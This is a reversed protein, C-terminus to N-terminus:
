PATTFTRGTSISFSGDGSRPGQPQDDTRSFADLYGSPGALEDMTAASGHKEVRWNYLENRRPAYGTFAPLTISRRTTVVYMGDYFNKSEAHFLAPGSGTWGFQVSSGLTVNAIGSAPVQQAAPAPISLAVGSQGVSLGDRHAVAYQGTFSNGFSAAVTISSSPLTPLVYSYSNPGADDNVVPIAAGDAFRVFAYNKRSGTNASTVSGTVLGSAVTEDALAFTVTTDGSGMSDFMATATDYSRYTTPLENADFSWLLAHLTAESTQSGYWTTSTIVGAADVDGFVDAGNASGLGVWLTRTADLTEGQPDIHINAYRAERGKYVQLTPDRRTLGEFRWAYVGAQGGPWSVVLDVWYEPEVDPVAFRGEADTAVTTTGITVPVDPLPALWFDVVRGHVTPDGTGGGGAEGAAGAHGEGGQGAQGADGSTGGTGATGGEGSTGGSPSGGKGASGGTPPFGGLDGGAGSSGSAGGKAGTGGDSAGGKGGDGDGDTSSEGECGSVQALASVALVAWAFSLRRKPLM